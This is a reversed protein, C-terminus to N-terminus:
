GGRMGRPPHNKQPWAPVLFFLRSACMGEGDKRPFAHTRPETPLRLTQALVSPVFTEGVTGGLSGERAGHFRPLPWRAATCRMPGTRALARV